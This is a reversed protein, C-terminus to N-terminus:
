RLNGTTHRTDSTSLRVMGFCMLEGGNKLRTGTAWYKSKQTINELDKDTKKRKTM